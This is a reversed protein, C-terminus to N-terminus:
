ATQQHFQNFIIQVTNGEYSSRDLTAPMVFELFALATEPEISITHKNRDIVITKQKLKKYFKVMLCQVIKETRTTFKTTNLENEVWGTLVELQATSLKLTLNM